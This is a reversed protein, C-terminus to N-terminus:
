GFAFRKRGVRQLIERAVPTNLPSRDKRREVAALAPLKVCDDKRPKLLANKGHAWPIAVGSAVTFRWRRHRRFIASEEINPKRPGPLNYEEDKSVREGVVFAM